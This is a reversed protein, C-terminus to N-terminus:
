HAKTRKKKEEKRLKERKVAEKQEDYKGLFAESEVYGHHIEIARKITAEVESDRSELRISLNRRDIVQYQFGKLKMLEEIAGEMALENGFLGRIEWTATM